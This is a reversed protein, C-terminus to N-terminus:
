KLWIGDALEHYRYFFSTGLETISSTYSLVRTQFRPSLLSLSIVLQINHGDLLFSLKRFWVKDTLDSLTLKRAQNSSNSRVIPLPTHSSM